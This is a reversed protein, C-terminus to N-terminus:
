MIYRQAILDNREFSINSPESAGRRSNAWGARALDRPLSPASLGGRHGPMSVKAKAHGRCGFSPFDEIAKSEAHCGRGSCTRQAVGM